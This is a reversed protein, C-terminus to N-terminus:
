YASLFLCLVTKKILIETWRLEHQIRTALRFRERMFNKPIQFLCTSEVSSGASVIATPYKSSRSSDVVVLRGTLGVLLVWACNYFFFIKLFKVSLFCEFVRITWRYFLMFIFISGSPSFSETNTLKLQSSKDLRFSLGGDSDPWFSDLEFFESAWSELEPDTEEGGWFFVLIVFSVATVLSGTVCRGFCLPNQDFVNLPSVM